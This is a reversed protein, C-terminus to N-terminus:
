EGEGRCAEYVTYMDTYYTNTDKWSTYLSLQARHQLPELGGERGLGPLHGPPEGPM